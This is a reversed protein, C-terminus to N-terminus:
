WFTVWGFLFGWLPGYADRLFVYQGGAHPRAAGLQAFTLAGFLSLIGSALWVAVVLFPSGVAKVIDTTVIFIGSGIIIGMVVMVGDLLTLSRSLEDPPKM